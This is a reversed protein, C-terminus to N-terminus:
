RSEELVTDEVKTPPEYNNNDWDYKLSLDFAFKVHNSNTMDYMGKIYISIESLVGTSDLTVLFQVKNASFNDAIQYVDIHNAKEVSDDKILRISKNYEDLLFITAAKSLGLRYTSSGNENVTKKMIKVNNKTFFSSDIQMYHDDIQHNDYSSLKTYVDSAPWLKDEIDYVDKNTNKIVARYLEYDNVLTPYQDNNKYDSDSELRNLFFVSGNEVKRKTYGRPNANVALGLPNQKSPGHDVTTKLDYDYESHVATEAKNFGSQILSLASQIGDESTIANAFVPRTISVGDGVHVYNQTYSINAEVVDKVNIAFDFVFNKIHNSEVTAYCDLSFAIGYNEETIYSLAEVLSSIKIINLLESASNKAFVNGLTLNYNGDKFSTRTINTGDILRLLFGFTKSEFNFEPTITESEVVSFDKTEDSDISIYTSDVNYSYHTSDILLPGSLTREQYYQTTPSKSNWKTKGEIKALSVEIASAFKVTANLAFNYEFSDNNITNDKARLFVEKSPIEQSDNSTGCSILVVPLIMALVFVIKKMKREKLNSM